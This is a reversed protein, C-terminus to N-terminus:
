SCVKNLDLKTPDFAQPQQGSHQAMRKKPPLRAADEADEDPEEEEWQKELRDLDEDSLEKFPPGWFDFFIQACSIRVKDIKRALAAAVLLLLLLLKIKMVLRTFHSRRGGIAGGDGEAAVQRVLHVEWRM